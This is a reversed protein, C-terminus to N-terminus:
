LSKLLAEADDAFYFLRSSHLTADFTFSDADRAVLERGFVDVVTTKRPLRITKTGSNRAHFSIFRENAEYIDFADGFIHVGAERAIRQMLPPEIFYSGSFVTRAKGTRASALGAAGNSYRGMVKEPNVAAFIPALPKGGNPYSLGGAKTGDECCFCMAVALALVSRTTGNM